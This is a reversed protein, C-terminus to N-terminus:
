QGYTLDGNEMTTEHHEYGSTAPKKNITAWHELQHAELGREKALGHHLREATTRAELLSPDKRDRFVLAARRKPEYNDLM